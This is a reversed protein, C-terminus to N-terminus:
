SERRDLQHINKFVSHHSTVMGYVFVFHICWADALTLTVTKLSVLNSVLLLPNFIKSHTFIYLIKSLIFGTASNATPM